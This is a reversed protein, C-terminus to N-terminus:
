CGDKAFVIELLSDLERPDLGPRFGLGVGRAEPSPFWLYLICPFSWVDPRLERLTLPSHQQQHQTTTRTITTSTSPPSPRRRCPSSSPSPSAARCTEWLGFLGLERRYDVALQEPFAWVYIWVYTWSYTWPYTWIYTWSLDRSLDLFRDARGNKWRQTYYPPLKILDFLDHAFHVSFSRFFLGLFLQLFSWSYIWLYTWSYTWLYTWSYTWIYTWSLDRFLDLFLDLFSGPIPGSAIRAVATGDKHTTHQCINLEYLDHAFHYGLIAAPLLDQGLDLFLELIAGPIFGPIPGPTHTHTSQTRWGSKWRETYQPPM